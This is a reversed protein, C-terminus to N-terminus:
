APPPARSPLTVIDAPAPLVADRVVLTWVVIKPAAIAPPPETIRQNSAACIACPTESGIPHSHALPELAILLAVALVFFWKLRGMGLM